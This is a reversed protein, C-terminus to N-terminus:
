ELRTEEGGCPGLARAVHHVETGWVLVNWLRLGGQSHEGGRKGSGAADAVEGDESHVECPSGSGRRPSGGGHGGGRCGQFRQHRVSRYSEQRVMKHRAERAKAKIRAADKAM